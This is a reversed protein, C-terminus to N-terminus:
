GGAARRSREARYLARASQPLKALLWFPRWLYACALRWGSRGVTPKWTAMHAPSPVVETALLAFRGVLGPTSALRELGLSTMPPSLARLHLERSVPDMPLGLRTALDRGEPILRVGFGFAPRADLEAALAAAHRWVTDDVRHVARTLDGIPRAAALGHQAAHLVVILAAAAPSPVTVPVGGITITQADTNLRDWVLRAPVELMILTQHLELEVRVPSSRIVVEHHATTGPAHPVFGLPALLDRAVVCREPEILLDIDDYPREGISDYLWRATGAGKLLLPREGGKHLSSFVEAIVSEMMLM